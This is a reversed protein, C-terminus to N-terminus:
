SYQLLNYMLMVTDLDEASDTLPSNIKSICSKFPVNKKLRLMKKPKTNKM